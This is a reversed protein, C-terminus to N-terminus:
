NDLRYLRLKRYLTTRGIGLAGAARSRNGNARRLATVIADREATEILTMPRRARAPRMRDPLDGPGIVAGPRTRGLHEVTNRLEAVNGPWTWSMLAQLADSSFRAGCPGDPLAALIDAVLGPIREHMTRLTPLRVVTAIQGVLARVHEPAADLDVTLLLPARGDDRPDDLAALDKIRNVDAPGLDQAHRLVVSRGDARAAHAAAFRDPADIPRHTAVDIVFPVCGGAGQAALLAAAHLKGTGPGGDVAGCRADAVAAALRRDVDPLPHAPTRPRPDAHRRPVGPAAGSEAPADDTTHRALLRVCFAPDGAGTDDVREVCARYWGDGMPVATLTRGPGGNDRLHSWLLAHSESSLYSLGATNAFATRENIVIVPDRAHQEAVLYSQILRRERAGFAAALNAEIQRGVDTAMACMLASADTVACAFAFTGAMRRSFPEFIPTGACTLAELAASYHESGRVLVPKREELVTGLGNTGISSESFDFGEAASANDLADRQRPENVERMIITGASDSLFMAVRVDTLHEGLRAIVPAAATYLASRPGPPGQYAVGAPTVPVAESVCRRWSREIVDRVGSRDAPVARLGADLLHKKARRTREPDFPEDAYRAATFASM